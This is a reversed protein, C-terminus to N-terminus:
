KLNVSGKLPLSQSSGGVMLTYEGPVLQWANRDVNFISLYLPDIEVVVTESEGANLRVKSWGVLRKPPEGTSAPLAAYIQAIEAGARSGTNALTFSVHAGKGQTALQLNSYSFKTYSLGYGFPFLPQKQEADYWKYGVKLGEDYTTQFAPLGAAIKKWADPDGHKTTSQVPPKVITLHPLDAESKPFTIPLKASPNVDGFLLNAVAEAGRTGPYWAELIGSVQDAWPMTVPGGTELVVITHPNAAAVKAILDDQHEPLSLSDLDMGESEWQYAFVIAVDATKAL